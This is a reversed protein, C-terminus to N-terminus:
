VLHDQSKTYLLPKIVALKLIMKLCGDGTKLTSQINLLIYAQASLSPFATSEVFFLKALRAVKELRQM